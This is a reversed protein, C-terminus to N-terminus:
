IRAVILMEGLNEEVRVVSNEPISAGDKSRAIKDVLEEGIRCRVQGVGNTPISVVVRASQGILDAQRLETTAQQKFLFSAFAYIIFAFVVGAGFGLGSSALTSLGYYTGIAGFGGFATIFVSIVRGSFFSPGGHGFDHDFEGNGFYDFIEGFVLSVLLFLFGLAAIALFVTFATFNSFLDAM